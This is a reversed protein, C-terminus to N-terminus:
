DIFYDALQDVDHVARQEDQDRYVFAIVGATFTLSGLFTAWATKSM